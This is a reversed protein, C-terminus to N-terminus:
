HLIKNPVVKTKKGMAFFAGLTPLFATETAVMLCGFVFEPFFEFHGQGM